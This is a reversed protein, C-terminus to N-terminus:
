YTSILARGYRSSLWWWLLHVIWLSTFQECNNNCLLLTCSAEVWRRRVTIIAMFIEEDTNTTWWKPCSFLDTKEEKLEPAGYLPRQQSSLYRLPLYQSWSEGMAFSLQIAMFNFARLLFDRALIDGIANNTQSTFRPHFQIMTKIPECLLYQLIILAM